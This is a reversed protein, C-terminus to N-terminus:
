TRHMQIKNTILREHEELAKKIKFRELNILDQIKKDPHAAMYRLHAEHKKRKGEPTSNASRQYCAKCLGKAYHIQGCITCLKM